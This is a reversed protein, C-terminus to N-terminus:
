RRTSAAWVRQTRSWPASDRPQKADVPKLLKISGIYGVAGSTGYDAVIVKAHIYLVSSSVRYTRVSCNSSSNKIATLNRTMREM